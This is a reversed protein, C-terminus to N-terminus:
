TKEKVNVFRSDVYSTPEVTYGKRTTLQRRLARGDNFKLVANDAMEWLLMSKLGEATKLYSAGREASHEMSDRLTHQLPTAEITLGNTGPYLKRIAAATNAHEWDPTPPEGKQIRQWLDHEAEIVMEQLEPDAPIRYQRYDQGGILVGLDCVPFGTLVMYHQVQLIYDQPVQDTGPEGFGRDTRATKGEYVCRADLVLGDPHGIMFPYKESRLMKAPQTVTYGTREAYHQRVVPELLRGWLTANNDEFPLVEGRKMLYVDLATARESMGLAPAADSGGLGTTRDHHFSEPMASM